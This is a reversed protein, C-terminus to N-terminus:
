LLGARGVLCNEDARRMPWRVVDAALKVALRRQAQEEAVNCEHYVNEAFNRADVSLLEISHLHRSLTLSRGEVGSPVADPIRRHVSPTSPEQEM